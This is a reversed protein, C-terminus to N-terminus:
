QPVREIMFELTVLDGLAYTAPASIGAVTGPNVLLTEGGRVNRIRAIDAKHSHGCCVLDWKGTAAMGEAIHPYHVAFVKRGAIELQADHGHYRIVSGAAAALQAMAVVDGLNNGHVVHVTLGFRQLGRLANPGIVDGCHIVAQAGQGAATEVAAALLESRDHSDSVICIKM